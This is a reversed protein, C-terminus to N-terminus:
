PPAPADFEAGTEAPWVASTIAQPMPPNPPVPLVLVFGIFIRTETPAIVISSQANRGETRTGSEQPTSGDQSYYRGPESTLHQSLQGLSWHVNRVQWRGNRREAIGTFYGASEARKGESM